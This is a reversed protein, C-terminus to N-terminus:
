LSDSAPHRLNHYRNHRPCRWQHALLGHEQHLDGLNCLELHKRGARLLLRMGAGRFAGLAPFIDPAGLHLTKRIRYPIRPPVTPLLNDELGDRRTPVAVDIGV